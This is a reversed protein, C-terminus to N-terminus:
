LSFRLCAKHLFTSRNAPSTDITLTNFLKLGNNIKYIKQIPPNAGGGLTRGHSEPSCHVLPCHQGRM